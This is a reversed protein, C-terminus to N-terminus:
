PKPEKPKDARVYRVAEDNFHQNASWGGTLAVQGSATVNSPWAVMEDPMIRPKLIPANNQCGCWDDSGKCGCRNGKEIQWEERGVMKWVGLASFRM